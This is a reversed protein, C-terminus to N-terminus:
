RRGIAAYHSGAGEIACQLLPEIGGSGRLELAEAPAIRRPVFHQLLDIVILFLDEVAIDPADGLDIEFLSNDLDIKVAPPYVIPKSLEILERQGIRGRNM